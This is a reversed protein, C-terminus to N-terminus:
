LCPFLGRILHGLLLWCLYDNLGSMNLVGNDNQRIETIFISGILGIPLFVVQTKLGHKGLYRSYFARQIDEYYGERRTALNGPCATPFAIDDLFGFVCFSDFHHLIWQQDVVQGDEFQIEKIAGTTVSNFILEQCLDLKDPLWQNLSTGSIKNFFTNYSYAIFLDNMESLHRSDGGFVFHAMEFFPSGKTLHYLWVLFCEVGTYVAGNSKHTFLVPVRLHLLLRCINAHNQSFWTFCDQESIDDLSRYDAPHFRHRRCVYISLDEAYLLAIEGHALIWCLNFLHREVYDKISQMKSWIMCYTFNAISDDVGDVYWRLCIFSALLLLVLQLVQLAQMLSVWAYGYHTQQDMVQAPTLSSTGRHEYATRRRTSQWGYQLEKSDDDADAGGRMEDLNRRSMEVVWSPWHPVDFAVNPYQLPPRLHITCLLRM